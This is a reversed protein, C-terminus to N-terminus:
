AATALAGDCKHCYPGSWTWRATPVPRRGIMAGVVPRGGIKTVLDVGCEACVGGASAMEAPSAVRSVEYLGFDVAPVAGLLSPSPFLSVSVDRLIVPHVPPTL